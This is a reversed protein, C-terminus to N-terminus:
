RHLPPSKGHPGLGNPDVVRSMDNAGCSNAITNTATPDDISPVSSAVNFQMIAGVCPDQGDGKLANIPDMESGIRRGDVFKLCNVLYLKKGVPFSSFDVVFDYREATGQVIM